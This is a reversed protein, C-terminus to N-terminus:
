ELTRELARQQEQVVNVDAGLKGALAKWQEIEEATVDGRRLLESAKLAVQASAVLCKDEETINLENQITQLLEMENQEVVLDESVRAAFKGLVRRKVDYIAEDSVQFLIRLALLAKAEEDDVKWDDETAALYAQTLVTIEYSPAGEKTIDVRVPAGKVTFFGETSWTTTRLFFMFDNFGCFATFGDAVFDKVAKDPGIEAQLVEVTGLGLSLKLSHWFGECEPAKALQERALDGLVVKVPGRGSATTTM